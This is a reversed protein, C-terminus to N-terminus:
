FVNINPINWFHHGIIKCSFSPNSSDLANRNEGVNGQFLFFIQVGVAMSSPNDLKWYFCCSLLPLISLFVM